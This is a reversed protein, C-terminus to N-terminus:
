QQGYRRRFEEARRRLEEAEQVPNRPQVASRPGSSGPRIGGLGSAPPAEPRIGLTAPRDPRSGRSGASPVPPKQTEAAQRKKVLERVHDVVDDVTQLEKFAEWSIPIRFEKALQRRLEALQAAGAKLDGALSARRTVRNANVNFQGAILAVVRPEVAVGIEVHDIADGVSRFQRFTELPFAAGFQWQLGRRIAERQQADAKLDGAFTSERSIREAPIGLQGAVVAIVRVEVTPNPVGLPLSPGIGQTVLVKAAEASGTPALAALLAVAAKGLFARRHEQPVTTQAIIAELQAEPVAALMSAEAGDLTLGITGAAEARKDLLLARFDADISAKKVLVEIGQPIQWSM